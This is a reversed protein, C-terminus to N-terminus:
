TLNEQNFMRCKTRPSPQSRKMDALVAERMEPPLAMVRKMNQEQSNSDVITGGMSTVMSKAKSAIDGLITQPDIEKRKFAGFLDGLIGPISRVKAQNTLANTGGGGGGMGPLGEPLLGSEMVLKGIFHIGTTKVDPPLNGAKQADMRELVKVTSAPLNERGVVQGTSVISKEISSQTPTVYIKTLKERLKKSYAGEGHKKDYAAIKDQSTSQMLQNHRKDIGGPAQVESTRQDMLQKHRTSSKERHEFDGIMGGGAHTPLERLGKQFIQEVEWPM